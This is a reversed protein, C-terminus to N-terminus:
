APPFVIHVSFHSQLEKWNIILCCHLIAFQSVWHQTLSYSIIDRTNDCELTIMCYRWNIIYLTKSKICIGGCEIKVWVHHFTSWQQYPRHLLTTNIRVTYFVIISLFNYSEVTSISHDTIDCSTANLGTSFQVTCVRINLILLPGRVPVSMDLSPIEPTLM